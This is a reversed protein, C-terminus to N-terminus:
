NDAEEDINDEDPYLSPLREGTEANTMTFGDQRKFLALLPNCGFKLHHIETSTHHSMEKDTPWRYSVDIHELMDSLKLYNNVRVRITALGDHYYNLADGFLTVYVYRYLSHNLESPNPLELINDRLSQTYSRTREHLLEYLAMRADAEHDYTGIIEVREYKDPHNVYEAIEKDFQEKDSCKYSLIELTFSKHIDHMLTSIVTHNKPVDDCIIESVDNSPTQPVDNSLIESVDNSSTNSM